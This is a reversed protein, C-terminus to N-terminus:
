LLFPLAEPSKRSALFITVWPLDHFVLMAAYMAAEPGIYMAGGAAGRWIDLFEMPKQLTALAGGEM